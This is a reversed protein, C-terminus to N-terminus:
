QARLLYFLGPLGDSPATALYLGTYPYLVDSQARFADIFTLPEGVLVDQQQM